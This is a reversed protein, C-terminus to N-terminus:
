RDTPLTSEPATSKTIHGVVTSVLKRGVIQQLTGRKVTLKLRLAFLNQLVLPNLRFFGPVVNAKLAGEGIPDDFM